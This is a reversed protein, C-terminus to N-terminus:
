HAKALERIGSTSVLFRVRGERSPCCMPDSPAYEATKVVVAGEEFEVSDFNLNREGKGGVKVTGVELFSGDQGRLASMYISYGNNQNRGSGGVITFSAIVDKIGDGDFDLFHIKRAGAHEATEPDSGKIRSVISDIQKAADKLNGRDGCSSLIM